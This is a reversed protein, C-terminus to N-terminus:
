ISVLETQNNEATVPQDQLNGPLRNLFYRMQTLVLDPIEDAPLQGVDPHFHITAQRLTRAWIALEKRRFIIDAGGWIVLSPKEVFSERQEWIRNLWAQGEAMEKYLTVVATRDSPQNFPSRYHTLVQPTLAPRVGVSMPLIWSIPSNFWRIWVQGLPSSMMWSLLEFHLDGNVPWCWGNFLVLGSIRDPIRTAIDLGIPVGWDSMVLTIDSLGLQDILALLRDAHQQPGLLAADDPKDSLGFGLHDIGVCRHTELLDDILHRYSFSWTPNGHIFLLVRGRGEDIYHMRGSRTIFHRSVFPYLRRNLWAPQQWKPESWAEIM